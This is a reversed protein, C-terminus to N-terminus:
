RALAMRQVLEARESRGLARDMTPFLAEEERAFHDRLVMLMARVAARFGAPDGREVAGRTVAASRAITRHDDHLVRTVGAATAALRELRPFLLEEELRLHRELGRDFERFCTRGRALDGDEVLASVEALLVDLRDHDNTLWGTVTSSEIGRRIEMFSRRLM